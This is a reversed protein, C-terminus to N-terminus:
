PQPPTPPRRKFFNILISPRFSSNYNGTYGTWQACLSNFKDYQSQNNDFYGREGIANIWTQYEQKFDDSQGMDGVYGTGETFGPDDYGLRLALDRFVKAEFECNKRWADM